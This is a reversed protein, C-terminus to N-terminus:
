KAAAERGLKVDDAVSYKNKPAVIKTQAVTLSTLALSLTLAAAIRTRRRSLLFPTMSLLYLLPGAM